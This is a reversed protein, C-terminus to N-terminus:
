AKTALRCVWIDGPRWGADHTIIAMESYITGNGLVGWDSGDKPWDMFRKMPTSDADDLKLYAILDWVSDGPCSDKGLVQDREWNPADLDGTNKHIKYNIM